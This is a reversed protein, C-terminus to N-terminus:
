RFVGWLKSLWGVAYKVGIALAILGGGVGAVTAGVHGSVEGVGVGGPGFLALTPVPTFTPTPTATNAPTSTATPELTATAEPEWLIIKTVVADLSGGTEIRLAGYRLGTGPTSFSAVRTGGGIFGWCDPHSSIGDYSSPVFCYSGEVLDPSSITSWLSPAVSSAAPYVILDEDDNIQIIVGVLYVAGADYSFQWRDFGTAGIPGVYSLPISVDVTYFTGAAWVSGVAGFALFGVLAVVVIVRSM